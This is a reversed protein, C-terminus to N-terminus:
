SFGLIAACLPLFNNHPLSPSLFFLGSTLELSGYMLARLGTSLSNNSDVVNFITDLSGVITSFFVIFGCVYLMSLTSARVADTFLRALPETQCPIDEGSQTYSHKKSERFFHKSLVGILIATGCTSLYLLVGCSLSGLHEAGLTLVTFAAGPNSSFCLLRCLEIHCLRGREYLKNGMVAGIPFGFLSGLLFACGAEGSMGFFKKSLPSILKGIARSLESRIILESVIMFPFLSPILRKACLEMGRRVSGVAVYPNKILLLLIFGCM